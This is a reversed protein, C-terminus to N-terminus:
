FNTFEVEEVADSVSGAVDTLDDVAEALDTAKGKYMKVGAIAAVVGGVAVAGIAIHKKHKAVFNLAKKHLPVKVENAETEIAEAKAETNKIAENTNTM